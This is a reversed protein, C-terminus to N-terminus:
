AGARRGRLRWPRRPCIWPSQAPAKVQTLTPTVASCQLSYPCGRCSTSRRAIRSGSSVFNSDAPATRLGCPRQQSRRASKGGTCRDGIERNQDFIQGQGRRLRLQRSGAARDPRARARAGGRSTDFTRRDGHAEPVAGREGVLHMVIGTHRRAREGPVVHPGLKVLEGGAADVALEGARNRRSAM